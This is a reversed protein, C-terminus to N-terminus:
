TNILWAAALLIVAAIAMFGIISGFLIIVERFFGILTIEQVKTAKYAIVIAATLPLLWLMAQPNTSIDQPITFTAILSIIGATM